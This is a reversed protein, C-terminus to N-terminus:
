ARSGARVTEVLALVNDLPTHPLIGHGLNFIHGPRKGVRDLLARARRVVEDRPAFLVVPDLNGMVAREGITAWADMLDVRWDVGIVGAGTTAIMPLLATTQTGFLIVPAEPRLAAVLTRVHPLVFTHYDDPGLCGVWSDFIQVAQAGADIQGNLYDATLRVIRQMLADWAGPDGYMLGKTHRYSTSGGGEILYSALTFPAGAFGILPLGAPLARRTARVGEFVYGLDALLEPERLRDIDAATRVPPDITPGEGRDYSLNLGFAEAPLLLDAFLIAADVGLRRAAHDTVEAVLDPNKCLALFPVRERIARYEKMYRGAQRMLWIPPAPLPERRCARLFPSEQFPDAPAPESNPDPNM